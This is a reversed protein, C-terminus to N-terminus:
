SGATASWRRSRAPRHRSGRASCGPSASGWRRSDGARCYRARGAPGGSRSSGTTIRAWTPCCSATPPCPRACNPSCGPRICRCPTRPAPRPSTGSGSRAGSGCQRCGAPGGQRAGLSGPRGAPSCSEGCSGSWPPSTPASGSRRRITGASRPRRGQARSRAASRSPTPTGPLWPLQEAPRRVTHRARPHRRAEAGGAESCRATAAPRASSCRRPGLDRGKGAVM